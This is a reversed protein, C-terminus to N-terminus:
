VALRACQYLLQRGASQSARMLRGVQSACGSPAGSDRALRPGQEAGHLGLVMHLCMFTRLTSRMGVELPHRHIYVYKARPFMAKWVHLRATHVPSKILLPRPRDGGKVLLDRLTVQLWFFSHTIVTLSSHMQTVNNMRMLPNPSFSYCTCGVFMLAAELKLATHM